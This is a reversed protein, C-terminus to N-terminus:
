HVPRAAVVRSVRAALARQGRALLAADGREVGERVAYLPAVAIYWAARRRGGEDVPRPYHALVRELFSRPADNLLGAFDLAPDGVIADGFDIVGALAGDADVLLHAGAIDGHVLARLAKREGADVAFRTELVDLAAATGAGIHPRVAAILPAYVDRWLAPEAVGLARAEGPPVAHLASLCQAIQQALRERRAGRLTALRARSLPVGDVYRHLAAVLAGGEGRVLEIDRAVYPVGRAALAPLLAAERELAACARAHKPVRVVDDGVRWAASDWGEGLWTM